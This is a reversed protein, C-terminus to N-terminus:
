RESPTDSSPKAETDESNPLREEAKEAKADSDVLPEVDNVNPSSDVVPGVDDNPPSHGEDRSPHLTENHKDEEAKVVDQEDAKVADAKALREEEDDAVTDVYQPPSHGEDPSPHLTKNHKDETDVYQPPSHGEDRSPHLTKNHKDEEAKVADQEDAKALREEEGDAVTDVYQPPSHGEDPSPHLTETHETPSVPTTTDPSYEPSPKSPELKEADMAPSIPPAVGPTDVNYDESPYEGNYCGMLLLTLVAVVGVGVMVAIKWTRRSTPFDASPISAFGDGGGQMEPLLIEQDQQDDKASFYM